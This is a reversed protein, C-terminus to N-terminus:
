ENLASSGVGEEKALVVIYVCATRVLFALKPKARTVELTLLNWPSDFHQSFLRDRHDLGARPM